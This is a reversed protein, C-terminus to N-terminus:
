KKWIGTHTNFSVGYEDKLQKMLDYYKKATSSLPEGEEYGEIEGQPLSSWWDSVAKMAKEMDAKEADKSKTTQLIMNMSSILSPNMENLSTTYKSTVKIGAL